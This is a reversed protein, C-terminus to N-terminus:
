PGVAGLIQQAAAIMSAATAPDIAKGTQANVKNEFARLENAGAATNGRDFAAAAASLSADLGGRIGAPVAAADVQSALSLTAQSLTQVTVDFHASATNGQTDTASCQVTTTGIAFASGTAPSCSVSVAGDVVDTATPPTYAVVAGSASSTVVTIDGPVGSLTPATTDLVTVTFSAWATSGRADMATCHVETSGLAFTSGSPPTCSVAVDAGLVDTATPAVFDVAAGAAGTAEATVDRPVDHFAPPTTDLVVTVSDSGTNGTADTATVTIPNSGEHLALAGTVVGGGAPLEGPAVGAPTSVVTTESADEVHAVVAAPTGAPGYFVQGPEPADITVIPADVDVDVVTLTGSASAGAPTTATITTSGAALATALGFSDITAVGSVSTSTWDVEGRPTYAEVTAGVGPWTASNAVADAGVVIIKGDLVATGPGYRSTPISAKTSWANTSPDFAEVVRLYSVGYSGSVVHLLGNVVAQGASHRATPMAPLTVWADAAADYAEATALHLREQPPPGGGVGGAVHLRGGIAGAVSSLHSRPTPMAAKTSWSNTAPDYCEVTALPYWPYNQMGGIVYLRGDMAGGACTWRGTPMPAKSAWANTAPDYVELFSTAGSVGDNGGAVYIRGDIVGIAASHRASPMPALTTWANTAPDFVESAGTAHEGRPSGGIVYLKGGVSAAMPAGLPTPTSPMAAWTDTGGALARTSGDSFTGTATFQQTEGVNRTANAPTVALSTLHVCSPPPAPPTFAEVTALWNDYWGGVAYIRGGSAAIQGLEGHPTPLSPATTWANTAPDYVDIDIVYGADNGGGVAYLLGNLAACGHSSRTVPLSAKTSWTDTAPDYAEVVAGTGTAGGAGGVAYLIGGAVAVGLSTRPTPMSARATWTDTAPDYMETVGVIANNSGTIGGVVYLKGNVVGAGHRTRPVSMPRRSSWSNTAPDYVELAATYGGCTVDGGVAYLKGGIVGTMADARATPMAAKATWSNTSPDYVTLANTAGCGGTGGGVVYLTGGVDAAGVHSRAQPLPALTEWAGEVARAEGGVFLAAAGLLALAVVLGRRMTRM